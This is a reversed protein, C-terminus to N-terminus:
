DHDIQLNLEFLNVVEILIFTQKIKEIIMFKRTFIWQRQSTAEKLVYKKLKFSLNKRFGDSIADKYFKLHPLVTYM